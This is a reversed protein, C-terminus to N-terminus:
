CLDSPGDVYISHHLDVRPGHNGDTYIGPGQLLTPFNQLMGSCQDDPLLSQVASAQAEPPVQYYPRAEPSTSSSPRAAQVVSLLGWFDCHLQYLVTQRDGINELESVVRALHFEMNKCTESDAATKALGGSASNISAELLAAAKATAVPPAKPAAVPVVAVTAPAKPAARPPPRETGKIHQMVHPLLCGREAIEFANKPRKKLKESVSNHLQGTVFDVTYLNGEAHYAPNFDFSPCAMAQPKLLEKLSKNLDLQMAHIPLDNADDGFPDELELAIFNISWFSIIVSFSLLGAWVPSEISTACIVAAVFWHMLLMVTIMQAFPFPIPFNTIKRANNLKVIGNGLQNYVRSLIPPAVKITERNNAEGILRQIWQLAVECADHAEDLFKLADIDFDELDIVEFHKQELSCVQSLGAGYLMSMLRALQNQFKLVDLKKSEDPNAFALLCSYANFWEGRLEQLLTGGEWWRSYAQQTRFVLLFGLVFTFMGLVSTGSSGVQVHKKVDAWELIFHLLVSLGACGVAFGFSKPFVSGRLRFAFWIGWKDSKYEIM